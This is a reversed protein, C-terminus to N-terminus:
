RLRKEMVIMHVLQKGNEFIPEPYHDTFFNNIQHSYEFGCAEYFPITLPSDGTGVRMVDAKEAFYNMLFQVMKKGYGKRQASPTTALNKLEVVGNGEDTVVAICKVSDEELVFMDGRDLYRGIM